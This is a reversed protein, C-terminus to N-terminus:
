IAHPNWTPATSSSAGRDFFSIPDYDYRRSRSNRTWSVSPSSYSRYELGHELAAQRAVSAGLSHGVLHRVERHEALMARVTQMKHTHTAGGLGAVNSLPLMMDDFLDRALVGAGHNWDTGRIYLTDGDLHFGTPSAYAKAIGGRDM